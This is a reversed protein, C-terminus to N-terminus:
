RSPLVTAATGVSTWSYDAGREREVEHIRENKQADKSKDEM